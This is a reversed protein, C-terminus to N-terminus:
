QEFFCIVEQAPANAQLKVPNQGYKPDISIVRIIKDWKDSGPLLRCLQNESNEFYATNLFNNGQEPFLALYLTDMEVLENLFHTGLSVDPILGERMTVIECIVAAKNIQAFTVPIGLSPTSTGWRGPGLFMINSQKEAQITSNIKGIMNAVDYRDRLPLNGYLEPTIYVLHDINIVRSQGIVAGHAKIVCDEQKVNVEPLERAEAGKVQLPRCQVLNIRYSTENIFNVTFEIDVPYNYTEQLIKLIDRMDQVFNTSTLLNDFTLIWPKVQSRNSNSDARTSDISAFMNIPIDKCSDILELFSGSTLTNNELDLYDVRRQSYQCVEEFNSEPRRSPENLAVIRTYDDDSRDVARTGLGFVLRIVGAKPDIHENWAYPNFSFGVGAAAPFYKKVHMQGSVRMVLLAMQEDQDLINRRSRYQLAKESMTSAYITRVAALLDEMRRARQGQNACFVSEYKGAFSNGFNDELLSSSRVIFPSQGFYDLMDELQRVIYEPFKGTLIRRRAQESDKLFTDPHRQKQRVWWIGNQVLFTYFVDSGIYFNDHEELVNLFRHDKHKLIARALIMGVAKGGILGTGIMRKAIKLIEELSMYDSVLKFIDDERSMIMRLLRKFHIEAHEGPLDGSEYNKFAEEAKLLARDWYGLSRETDLASWETCTRIESIIVSSTVPKFEDGTWAHLMNMTPSYRHQVKLPRVYRTEKHNLVELLLQTTESIPSLARSSHMNRFLAFYAITELDYLFPCTLVFFNGLMQDSYWDGALESLCDFVYYAGRGTEEIVDHITSIFTEFGHEPEVKHIDAGFNDPILQAHNAFRFYVLKKGSRRAYECYPTVFACYDDISDVQWVINDGPLIGNLIKDLGPLGSSANINVM